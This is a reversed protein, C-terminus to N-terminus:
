ELHDSHRLMVERLAQQLTEDGILQQFRVHAQADPAADEFFNMGAIKAVAYRDYLPNDTEDLLELWLQLLYRWLPEEMRGPMEGMNRDDYYKQVCSVCEDWPVLKKRVNLLEEQNM